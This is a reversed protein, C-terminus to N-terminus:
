QRDIWDSGWILIFALIPLLIVCALIEILIETWM